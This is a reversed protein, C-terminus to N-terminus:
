IIEAVVNFPTLMEASVSAEIVLRKLGPYPADFQPDLGKSLDDVKISCPQLCDVIRIRLAKGDQRLIAEGNSLEIDALTIWQWSARTIGNAAQCADSVTLSGRQDLSFRRRVAIAQGLYVPSLDFEVSVADGTKDLQGTGARGTALQGHGDFRLISHGGPGLRLTKWRSSEQRYDFLQHHKIGSRQMVSAYPEMEPDIAWRVGAAEFVFSGADMHGHSHDCGGAKAALWTQHVRATLVAVPNFGDGQWATLPADAPQTAEAPHGRAPALWILSLALDLLPDPQVLLDDAIADIRARERGAMGADSTERAFWLVAPLHARAAESDFYNFWMGSPGTLRDLVAASQLFGPFQTLGFDRGFAARYMEIQMVHFSTGYGWYAPSEPYVGDPGYCVGVRPLMAIARNIIRQALAPERDAIAIAGAVLGSHLVQNWNHDADIWGPGEGDISARLAFEIRRAFHDREAPSLHDYVWDYGTALAVCALTVDMFHGCPWDFSALATMEGMIGRFYREEHTLRYTTALLRIRREARRMQPGINSTPTAPTFDIPPWDLCADAMLRVRAFLSAAGGEEDIRRRLADWGAAALLVSPRTLSRLEDLSVAEPPHALQQPTVPPYTHHQWPRQGPQADRKETNM